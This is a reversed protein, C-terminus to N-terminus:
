SLESSWDTSDISVLVDAGDLIELKEVLDNEISEIIDIYPKSPLIMLIEGNKFLTRIADADRDALRAATELEEEFLRETEPTVKKIIDGSSPAYVKLGPVDPHDVEIVGPDPQAEYMKDSLNRMYTDIVDQIDYTVTEYYTM